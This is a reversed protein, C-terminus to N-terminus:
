MAKYLPYDMNFKLEFLDTAVSFIINLYISSLRIHTVNASLDITLRSWLYKYLRYYRSNDSLRVIAGSYRNKYQFVAILSRM